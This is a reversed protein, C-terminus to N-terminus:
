FKLGDGYALKVLGNIVANNTTSNLYLDRLYEYFDNNPGWLVWKDSKNDQIKPSVYDTFMLMKGDGIEVLQKERKM